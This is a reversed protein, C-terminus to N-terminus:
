VAQDPPPTGPPAPLTLPWRLWFANHAILVPGVICLNVYIILINIDAPIKAAALANAAPGLVLKMLAIWVTVVVCLVVFAAIARKFFTLKTIGWFQLHWSYVLAWLIFSSAVAAFSFSPSIGMSLSGTWCVYGLIHALITQAVAAGPHGLKGFPWGQTTFVPNFVFFWAISWVLFGTLWDANLPGHHNSPSDAFPTGDLNTFNTWIVITLILILVFSAGMVGWPHMKGKFPWGNWNIGYLLTLWFAIVGFWLYLPGIPWKPFIYRLFLLFVATFVAWIVTMGIGATARSKAPTWSGGPPSLPYSDGLLSLHGLAVLMMLTAPMIKMIATDLPIMYVFVWVGLITIIILQILGALSGNPGIGIKQEDM